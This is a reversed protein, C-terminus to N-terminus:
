VKYLREARRVTLVKATVVNQLIVGGKHQNGDRKVKYVGTRKSRRHFRVLDNQNFTHAVVGYVTGM